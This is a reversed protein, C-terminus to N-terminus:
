SSGRRRRRWARPRHASGPTQTLVTLPSEWPGVFATMALAAFCDLSGGRFSEPNSRQARLSPTHRLPMARGAGDRKCVHSRARAVQIARAKGPRAVREILFACPLGPARGAGATQQAFACALCVACCCVPSASCVAKGARHDSPKHRARGPASNRKAERAKRFDGANHRNAGIGCRCSKVTAVVAPVVRNQRVRTRGIGCPRAATHVRAALINALRVQCRRENVRPNSSM